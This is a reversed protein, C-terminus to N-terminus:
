KADPIVLAQLIPDNDDTIADRYLKGNLLDSHADARGYTSKFDSTQGSENTVFFGKKPVIVIGSMAGKRDNGSPSLELEDWPAALNGLLKMSETEFVSIVRDLGRTVFARDDDFGIDMPHTVEITEVNKGDKSIRFIRGGENDAVWIRGKSDVEAGRLSVAGKLYVTGGEGFSTSLTVNSILGGEESLLSRRVGGLQREVSYLVLDKGDRVVAVGECLATQYSYQLQTLKEDYILVDSENAIYVRGKDDTAISKGLPGALVHLTARGFDDTIGVALMRVEGQGNGAHHYGAYLFKGDPSMALGRNRRPWVKQSQGSVAQSNDILYQVTWKYTDGAQAPILASTLALLAITVNRIFKAHMSFHITM